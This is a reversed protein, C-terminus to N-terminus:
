KSYKRNHKLNDILSSGTKLSSKNIPSYKAKSTRSIPISKKISRHYVLPTTLSSKVSSKINKSTNIILNHSLIPKSRKLTTNPILDPLHVIISCITVHKTSLLTPVTSNTKV